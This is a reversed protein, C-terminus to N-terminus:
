EKDILIQPFLACSGECIFSHNCAEDTVKNFKPHIAKILNNAADEYKDTEAYSFFLREEAKINRRIEKICSSEYILALQKAGGIHLVEDLQISGESDLSGRYTVLVGKKGYIVYFYDDWTYGQFILNYHKM